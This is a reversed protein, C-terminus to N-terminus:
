RLGRLPSHRAGFPRTQGYGDVDIVAEAFANPAEQFVNHGTGGKFRSWPSAANRGSRRPQWSLGAAAKSKRGSVMVDIRRQTIPCGPCPRDRAPGHRCRRPLLRRNPAQKQVLGSGGSGACFRVRLVSIAAKQRGSWGAASPEGPRPSLPFATQPRPQGRLQLRRAPRWSAVLSGM